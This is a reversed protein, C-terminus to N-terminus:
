LTQTKPPAPASQEDLPVKKEVPEEGIIETHDIVFPKGKEITNQVFIDYKGTELRFHHESGPDSRAVEKQTGAEYIIVYTTASVDKGELLPHVRLEGHVREHLNLRAISSGQLTVKRWWQAQPPIAIKVDVTGPYAVITEGSLFDGLKEGSESNYVEVALGLERGKKDLAQVQLGAVEGIMVTTTRGAKVLVNNRTVQGGLVDLELRYTGPAVPTVAGIKATAIPTANKKTYLRVSVDSQHGAEGLVEVVIMGQTKDQALVNGIGIWLTGLLFVTLQATRTTTTM